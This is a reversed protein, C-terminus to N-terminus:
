VVHVYNNSDVAVSPSRQDYGDMGTATSIDVPTAWVGSSRVAVWIQYVIPPTTTWLGDWAVYVNNSSDIAISPPEQPLVSQSPPATSIMLQASWSTTYEVYYILLYPNSGDNGLYAVHLHGLSDIAIAEGGYGSPPLASYTSVMTEDIWTTGNDISKSVYVQDYGSGFVAERDYVAFLTGNSARVLKQESTYASAQANSSTTITSPLGTAHAFPFAPIVAGLLVVLLLISIPKNKDM